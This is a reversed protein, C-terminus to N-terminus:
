AKEPIYKGKPIYKGQHATSFRELISWGFNVNINLIWVRLNPVLKKFYEASNHVLVVCMKGLVM